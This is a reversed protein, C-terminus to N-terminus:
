QKESARRLTHRLRVEADERATELTTELIHTGLISADTIIRAEVGSKVCSAKTESHSDAM